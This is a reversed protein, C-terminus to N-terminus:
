NTSTTTSTTVTTVDVGAKVNTQGKSNDAAFAAGALFAVALVSFLVKKM